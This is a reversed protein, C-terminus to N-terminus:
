GGGDSASSGAGLPQGIKHPLRLKVEVSWDKKPKRAPAADAHGKRNAPATGNTMEVQQKMADEQPM